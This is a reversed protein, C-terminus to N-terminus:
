RNSLLKQLIQNLTANTKLLKERIYSVKEILKFYLALYFM